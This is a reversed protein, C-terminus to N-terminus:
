QFSCDLIYDNFVQSIYLKDKYSIATSGASIEEGPNAYIEKFTDDPNIVFVQTPAPYDKNRLHRLFKWTSQHGVVFIRGKEDAELNDTGTDVFITKPEGLVIKGSSRDVPFKFVARDMFGSRYLFEKGDARKIFLIGNGYYLPNGLSSWSKGDYVSIESRASRFLDDLFYRFKGGQGHDNSVYIENESEVFLDNPSTLLPDKLTQIHKWTGTPSKQDPRSTREFVEISHEQFPVVHSIVYLRYTNGKMLLSIGHPHFPKPYDVVLPIPKPSPDVTNLVYLKGEQDSIRREHSSVYLLGEKRDIAIDEPGPMGAIKSCAPLPITKLEASCSISLFCLLISIKSILSNQMPILIEVM